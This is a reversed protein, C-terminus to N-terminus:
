WFTFKQKLVESVGDDKSTKLNPFNITKDDLLPNILKNKQIIHTMDTIDSSSDVTQFM